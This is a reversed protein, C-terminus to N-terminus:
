KGQKIEGTSDRPYDVSNSDIDECTANELQKAEIIAREPIAMFRRPANHKSCLGNKEVM